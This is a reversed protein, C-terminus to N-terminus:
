LPQQQPPIRMVVGEISDKYYGKEYELKIINSKLELLLDTLIIVIYNFDQEIINNNKISTFINRIQEIEDEMDYIKYYHYHYNPNEFVKCCIMNSLKVINDDINKLYKNILVNKGVIGYETINSM